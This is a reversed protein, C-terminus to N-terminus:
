RTVVDPLVIGLTSKKRHLKSPSPEDQAVPKEYERREVGAYIQRPRTIRLQGELLMENWQAVWGVCRSMAFMVTFMTTPIGMARLLIGSYYDVNPYLKRKIFYEDSLAVEELARAVDLLPDTVGMESLSEEVLQKMFRARPDYNKYVRHGFGMLRVGAKKAKVDEVFQAVKDASGIEEFM